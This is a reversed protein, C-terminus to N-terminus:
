EDVLEVQITIEDKVEAKVEQRLYFEDKNKRELWWKSLDTDGKEIAEVVNLKAKVSPRNRLLEIRDNFEPKEQLYQYFCNRSINAFQCCESVNLGRMFGYEMKTVIEATMARPRGRGKKRNKAM